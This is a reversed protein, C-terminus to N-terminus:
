VYSIIRDLHERTVIESDDFALSQAMRIANKIQRGNLPYEALAVIDVDPVSCSSAKLLNTWVQKRSDHSLKKYEFIMSIRSKFAPDMSDARNTTLFIVGANRELLRLFIGVMANRLIDNSTRAELFIDAEDLLISANWRVTIELIQSLKKELIDPTIGLEGATISYLPVHLLEAIAECTLTKGTGPEGHLLLITGGSKGSIIDKFGTGSKTVLAKIIKKRDDDIVLSDYACDDYNVDSVCNVFMQGWRKAVFSFGCLTHWTTYLLDDPIDTIGDTTNNYRAYNPNITDFGFKDTMARGTAGFYVPGWSTEMFMAGSYIIHHCNMGYKAFQKGRESLMVYAEDTMPRIPLTDVTKMGTFEAIYFQKEEKVFQKETAVIFMGYLYFYRQDFSGYVTATKTVTSGVIQNKGHNVDTIFKSGITFLKNLTDFTVKNDKKMQEYRANVAINCDELVMLLEGLCTYGAEFRARIKPVHEIMAEPTTKVENDYFREDNTLACLETQLIADKEKSFILNVIDGDDNCVITFNSAEM